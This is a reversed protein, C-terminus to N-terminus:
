TDTGLPGCHDGVIPGYSHQDNEPKGDSDLEAVVYRYTPEAPETM